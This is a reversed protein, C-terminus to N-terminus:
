LHESDLSTEKRGKVTPFSLALHIISSYSGIGAEGM